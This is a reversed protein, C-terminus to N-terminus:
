ALEEPIFLPLNKDLLNGLFRQSRVGVSSDAGVARDRAIRDVAGAPTAARRSSTGLTHSSTLDAPEDGFIECGSLLRNLVL